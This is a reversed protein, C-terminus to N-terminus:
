ARCVALAIATFHCAAALVTCAHFIEHFGFWGPSPDPRRRAYVVAGLSYALGGALLLWVVAPGSVQWFRPMWGLAGWGLAIYLCVYLWRPANMWLVRFLCGALACGWVLALLVVRSRGSLCVVALPTYTGAIFLYINSHDIRRLVAATRPSWRGLHYTASHGFLLLSTALYVAMAAKAAGGDALALIVISAALLLPAAGAHLWGRLRPKGRDPPPTTSTPPPTPQPAAPALVTPM